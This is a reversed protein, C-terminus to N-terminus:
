TPAKVRIARLDLCQTTGVTNFWWPVVSHIDDGILPVFIHLHTVLKHDSFTMSHEESSVNGSSAWSRGPFPKRKFLEDTNYSWASILYFCTM